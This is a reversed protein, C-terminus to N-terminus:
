SRAKRSKKPAGTKAPARDKLPIWPVPELDREMLELVAERVFFLKQGCKVGLGRNRRLDNFASPRSRGRLECYELLTILEPLTKRLQAISDKSVRTDGSSALSRREEHSLATSARSM